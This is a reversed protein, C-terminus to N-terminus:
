ASKRRRTVVGLIGLGALLMAYQDAEPVPAYVVNGAGSFGLNTDYAVYADSSDVFGSIFSFGIDPSISDTSWELGSFLGDNFVAAPFDGTYGAETFTTSLFSMSLSTLDIYETGFSTLSADDFSFIGSFVEGNYYGSDMAGTFSYEQIAAQAPLVACFATTIVLHKFFNKM